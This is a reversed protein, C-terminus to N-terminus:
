HPLRAGVSFPGGFDRSVVAVFALNLFATVQVAAYYWRLTLRFVSALLLLAIAPVLYREHEMTGVVFFGVALLGAALFLHSASADRWVGWLVVLALVAFIAWGIENPSLPGLVKMNSPDNSVGLLWWLNYAHFSTFPFSNEFARTNRLLWLVEFKPPLLYPLCIVVSTVAGALAARVAERADSWRFLYVLVLPVFILPQPKVMIAVGLWIGASLGRGGLTSHLSLLLALVFLSDVQGWGVGALVIAPSFAYTASALLAARASIRSRAIRYILAVSLLDALITPVKLLAALLPERTVDLLPTAGVLQAGTRYLKVIAAFLYVTVPPYNPVLLQAAGVSYFGLFHRNALLGWDAFQQLDNFMGSFPAIALRLALAALLVAAFARGESTRLFARLSQTSGSFSSLM